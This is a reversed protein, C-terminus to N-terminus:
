PLRDLLWTSLEETVLTHPENHSACRFEDLESEQEASATVPAYLKEHTDIDRLAIASVTPVFCHDRIDAESGLGILAPIKDLEDALIGFGELTGGPAGDIEPLGSTRVRPKRLTVVRLQAVLQDHGASQTHLHTGTIALGTGHFARVGPRIGNGEGSRAGNAVGIKRPRAPWGGVRELEALFEARAKDTEPADDWEAIHQWLLQRAAPSNMQHSFAPNLRRIYHAFSQLAIPVWAGRHPSDYSFYLGTQHDNEEGGDHEMRALAYRAVLGGMSFGGVTLPHDGTRQAVAERVAARVARANDLISAGREDFGLLVVDYGRRRLEGLFPYPGRELIEWSYDLDSPGSNFGDAIIVPRTLGGGPDALYVWARGEPLAWEDDPEPAPAPAERAERPGPALTVRAASGFAEAIRPDAPEHPDGSANPETPETM